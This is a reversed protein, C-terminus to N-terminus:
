GQAHNAGQHHRVHTLAKIRRECLLLAAAGVALLVSLWDPVTGLLTYLIGGAAAVTLLHFAARLTIPTDKGMRNNAPEARCLIVLCALLFVTQAVLDM